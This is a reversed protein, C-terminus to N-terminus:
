EKAPVEVFGAAIRGGMLAYLLFRRADFFVTEGTEPFRFLFRKAGTEATVLALTLPPAAPEAPAKPAPDEGGGFVNVVEPEPSPRLTLTNGQFLATLVYGTALCLDTEWGELAEPLAPSGAKATDLAKLSLDPLEQILLLQGDKEALFLDDDCKVAIEEGFPVEAGELLATRGRLEETKPLGFLPYKGGRSAYDFFSNKM